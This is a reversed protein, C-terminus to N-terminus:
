QKNTLQELYINLLESLTYTKIDADIDSAEVDAIKYWKNFNVIGKRTTSEVMPSYEDDIWEMALILEAEFRERYYKETDPHTAGAIFDYKSGVGRNKYDQAADKIPQPTM